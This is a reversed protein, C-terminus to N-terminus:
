LLNNNISFHGENFFKTEFKGLGCTDCVGNLWPEAAGGSGPQKYCCERRFVEGSMCDRWTRCRGKMELAGSVHDSMNVCNFTQQFMIIRFNIEM